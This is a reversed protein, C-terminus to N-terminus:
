MPTMENWKWKTDNLRKAVQLTELYYCNSCMLTLFLPGLVTGPIPSVDLGPHCPEQPRPNSDRENMARKGTGPVSDPMYYTHLLCRSLSHIDVLCHVWSAACTNPLISEVRLKGNKRGSVTGVDVSTEVLHHSDELYPGHKTRTKVRLAECRLALVVTTAWYIQTSLNLKFNSETLLIGKTARTNQVKLTQATPGDSYTLHGTWATGKIVRLAKQLPALTGAKFWM